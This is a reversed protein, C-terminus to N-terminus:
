RYFTLCPKMKPNEPKSFPNNYPKNKAIQCYIMIKALNRFQSLFYFM